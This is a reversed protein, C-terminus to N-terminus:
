LISIVWVDGYDLDREGWQLQWARWGGLYKGSVGQRPHGASPCQGRRVM